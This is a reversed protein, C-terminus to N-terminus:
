PANASAILCAAAGALGRCNPGSRASRTSRAAIRIDDVRHQATGRRHDSVSRHNRYGFGSRQLWNNTRFPRCYGSMACARMDIQRPVPSPSKARCTLHKSCWNAARDCPRGLQQLHEIPSRQHYLVGMSFTTDFARPLAAIRAAARCYSVRKATRLANIALFQMVICCPRISASSRTPAPTACKCRTTATAVASTSFMAARLPAIADKLRDWKLDSRWEADIHRGCSSRARAGRRCALCCNAISGDRERDCARVREGAIRLRRAAARCVSHSCRKSARALRGTRHRAPMGSCAYDIMSQDRRHFRLQFLAALRRHARLRREGSARPARSRKRSWYMKWRPANAASRSSATITADSTSTTCISSCNKWQRTKTSSKRPCCSCGAPMLGDYIRQVLADRDDLDLFQLTYNMVVM